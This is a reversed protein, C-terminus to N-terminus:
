DATAAAGLPAIRYFARATGGFIAARDEASCHATLRRALALWDGYECALRCVPWDSGWMLRRAGFVALLHDVVPQLAAQMADLDADGSAGSAGRAATRVAEASVVGAPVAGAPVAGAPRGRDRRIETVLGSLKCFAATETAIREIDRAWTDFAAAGCAATDIAPLATAPKLAHDVVVRLEPYRQLRELFRPAHKPYGLADFALDCARVADFAWQLAPRALWDDDLDQVMPRVSRFRPHAAFRELRARQAPDEFDIWGVVAGIRESSDAIGLLYETEATTPAAQVLVSQGVGHRDFQALADALRYPRYLVPDAPSMWGYDGRAPQWLHHHADIM